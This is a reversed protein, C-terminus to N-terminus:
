ASHTRRYALRKGEASKHSLIARADDDVSRGNDRFDFESLYRHPHEADSM